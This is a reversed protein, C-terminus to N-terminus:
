IIFSCERNCTLIVLRFICLELHFLTIHVGTSKVFEYSHTSQPRRPRCATREESVSSFRWYSLVADCGPRGCGVNEGSHSRWIESWLEHKQSKPWIVSVHSHQTIWCHIEICVPATHYSARPFKENILCCTRISSAYFGAVDALCFSYFEIFVCWTLFRVLWYCENPRYQGIRCPNM